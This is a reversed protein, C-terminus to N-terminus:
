WIGDEHEQQLAELNRSIYDAVEDFKVKHKMGNTWLYHLYDAPVKQMVIGKYKGFPMLDDDQLQRM